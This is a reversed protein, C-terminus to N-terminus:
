MWIYNEINEELEIIYTICLLKWMVKTAKLFFKVYYIITKFITVNSHFMKSSSSNNNKHRIFQLIHLFLEVVLLARCAPHQNFLWMLDITQRMIIRHYQKIQRQTFLFLHIIIRALSTPATPRNHLVQRLHSVALTSIAALHFSNNINSTILTPTAKNPGKGWDVTQIWFLDMQRRHRRESEQYSQHHFNTPHQLQHINRINGNHRHM